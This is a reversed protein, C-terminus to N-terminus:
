NIEIEWDTNSYVTYIVGIDETIWQIEDPSVDLYKGGTDNVDCVVGCSVKLHSSHKDEITIFLDSNNKSILINLTPNLDDISTYLTDILHVLPIINSTILKVKSNLCSICHPIVTVKLCAM